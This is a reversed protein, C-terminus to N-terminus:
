KNSESDIFSVIIINNATIICWFLDEGFIQLM